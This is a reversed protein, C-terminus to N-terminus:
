THSCPVAKCGGCFQLRFLIREVTRFNEISRFSLFVILSFFFISAIMSMPEDSWSSRDCMGDWRVAINIRAMELRYILPSFFVFRLFYIIILIILARIWQYSPFHAFRSPTHLQQPQSIFIFYNRRSSILRGILSLFKSINKKERKVIEISIKCWQKSESQEPIEM